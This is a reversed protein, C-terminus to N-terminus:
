EKVFKSVKSKGNSEVICSYIGPNFNQMDVEIRGGSLRETNNVMKVVQGISNVITVKVTSGLDGSPTIFAKQKTPNPYLNFNISAATSNNSVVIYASAPIEM